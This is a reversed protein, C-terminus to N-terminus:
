SEDGNSKTEGNPGLKLRVVARKSGTSRRLEEAATQLVTKLDPAVYLRDTIEAIAKEREAARQTQQLASQSKEYLQANDLAVAALEAFQEVAQLQESSFVRGEELSALGLVGVIEDGSMLPVGVVARLIDRDVMPLRGPWERYDDVKIAQGTQWVTGALGQGPKVRTGIFEHYIGIGVRMQLEKGSPEVLHVYGHETGVLEAARTIINQLLEQLDLRSVLGLTTDHLATLYANQQRVSEEAQRRQIYQVIQSGVGTLTAIMVEDLTQPHNSFFVAVGFVRQMSVLPLGFACVLGAEAAGSTQKFSPDTLINESWIPERALLAKGVFGEDSRFTLEKSNVAFSQLEAAQVNWEHRLILTAGDPSLTWYEGIQWDLARCTTELLEQAVAEFSPAGALLQATQYQLNIRKEADQVQTLAQQTQALAVQTQEFLSRNDLVTAAQAMISRYLRLDKDSFQHPARWNFSLLGIWREGVKLPLVASAKVGSREIIQRAALPLRADNFLDAFVAPEFPNEIWTTSIPFYALPLRAGIPIATSEQARPWNGTMELAEPAGSADSYIRMLTASAAGQVVAPGSAAELAEQMTNAANLRASIEYLTRAEGLAEQTQAFLQAKDLAVSLQTALSSALREKDPTIHRTQQRDGLEVLGHIQNQRMLPVACYTLWGYRQMLKRVQPHLQADDARYTRLKGKAFFEEFDPFEESAAFCTGIPEASGPRTRDLDHLMVMEHTREDWLSVTATEMDLAAVFQETIHPLIINLDLEQSISQMSANLISVENLRTTTEAFLRANDLASVIHNAVSTLLAAQPGGYANFQYTQASIVGRLENGARLPVYLLSASPKDTGIIASTRLCEQEWELRTHNMVVSEGSALVRAVNGGPARPSEDDSFSEGRDYLAPRTVTGQASDFLWVIFADTAMLLPLFQYVLSYINEGEVQGSLARALDNIIETERVRAETEDFLRAREVAVGVQDAITQLLDLEVTGFADPMYSQISLVGIMKDGSQLPVGLWTRVDETSGYTIGANPDDMKYMDPILLSAGSDIVRGSLTESAPSRDPPYSVGHDMQMRFDLLQEEPLYLAMFFADPKLLADVEQYIVQALDDFSTPTTVARAIRNLTALRNASAETQQFLRRKEIASAMQTAMTEAVRIDDQTFIREPETTDLGITGIVKDGSLLPIIALCSTHRERMREHIPATLPDHQADPVVLSKKHQIVYESSLNGSVPIVIGVAHQEHEEALADAVVTLETGQPNLLAIGCNRAHFTNVLEQAMARLSDEIAVDAMMAIAVRNIGELELNRQRAQTEARTRETLEQQVTNYLRANELATSIARSVREILALDAASFERPSHSDIGVTGIIQERVFLPALLISATQRTEMLDRVAATREDHRADSIALPMGTQLVIETSPNGAVPIVYGLVSPAGEPSYDAVVTLTTHDQSLLAIGTQDAGFYITLDRCIEVLARDVDFSVAHSTVRNLLETERLQQALATEARRREALEVQVTNFLRTNRLAAAAQTALLKGIQEDQDTFRDGAQVTTMTLVGVTEGQWIMPIGIAARFPADSFLSSRFEWQHYDDVRIPVGTAMVRGSLGEGHKLRRGTMTVAGVNQSFQLEIEDEGVPVWIDAGDVGLLRKAQQCILDLLTNVQADLKGLELSIDFLARIRDAQAAIQHEARTREALETQSSEYLRANDLAIAALQAFRELVLLEQPGFKREPDLYALGIIGIVESGSRLPVGVVARLIDRSADALRGTYQRYDDVSVPENRSWVEGALGVGMKVRRGVFGAYAGVGVRLEMEQEGPEKIFVYGNDTGVLQGARAVIDQLLANVDLRGILGITTEQLAGLYEHQQRLQEQRNQEETIDWFMIQMGDIEGALNRLPTKLVHVIIDTGDGRQHPEITDITEGDHLVRLDDQWYKEALERPHFDFDTKGYLDNPTLLTDEWFRANGFTVRGERDKRTVAQPLVDVLSRYLAENQRVAEEALKRETVDNTVGTIRFETDSVRQIRADEFVWHVAGQADYVRFEQTYGSRGERMANASNLSIREADAADWSNFWADAFSQGELIQLPFFRLAAEPNAYETEWHFGFAEATVDDLQTVRATWFLTHVHEAVRAMQTQARRTETLDHFFWVRALYTGDSATVPASFEEFVRGDVLEVQDRSAGAKHLYAEGTRKLWVDTDLVTDRVAQRMAEASGTATVEPSIGWMEAFRKNSSLVRDDAGVVLIGDPSVDYQAAMLANQFAEREQARKHETVDRFMGRTSVVRGDLLRPTASGEILVKRGDKAVFATQLEPVSEGSMLKGFLAMCHQREDPHIVDMFNLQALEQETYGLTEKWARNVYEYHGQADISQILDGANEFLDRYREESERLVANARVRETVDRLIGSFYIQDGSTWQSLSLDLPFETGDKRLGSMEVTTGLIHKEGGDRVREMGEIHAARYKEPMLLTLSQGVVEIEAYQFIKEAGHNWGLITGNADAVVIADNASEMIARLRAESARLAEDAQKRATIDQSIGLLYVPKGQADLIPVKRTHLWRTEGAATKIPEEPIDLTRGSALTERDKAVFFDAVDAPFFDHDSKGLFAQRPTQTIEEGAKNWRVFTLDRAEKVFLMTPVSEIISDLFQETSERQKLERQSDELLRANDLAISALSAFRNLVDLEVPGFHKDAELHALGIIGITMEESKIPVGVVARLVNRSADALRGSWTRYDDVALAEGTEWVQGALGNGRKAKTGVFEQYTGVGVRMIMEQTEADLLFVYGNQTGVLEGARKIIDQLLSQLDRRQMLEVSVNQLAVYYANNSELVQTRDTVRQELSGVLERLQATMANFTTALTGIEDSSEVPARAQLNGARVQEATATLEVLPRTLFRAGGVAVAAAIGAIVLALLITNRTQAEIPALAESRNQHVLLLWGLNSVATAVPSASSDQVPTMSYYRRPAGPQAIEITDGQMSRVQALTAPDHMEAASDGILQQNPLLLQAHGTEGPKVSELLTAIAQISFTTRLIGEITKEDAGYIPVAINIANTSASEDFEPQGIYVAGQGNNYAKQWWEEDAQYYDSTRNTAAVNGGYKDTLFVEANEPYAARFKQLVQAAPNNLRSAVLEDADNHAADAARWQADRKELEAQNANADSGYSANAQAVATSLASDFALVNLVNTEQELLAVVNRAQTDALNKLTTGTRTVLIESSVRNNVVALVALPLLTLALSIVIFKERLSFKPFQRLLFLAYAGLIAGAVVISLAFDLPQPRAPSGFFDLLICAIASVGGALFAWIRWRATLTLYGIVTALVLAIMGTLVGAGQSNLSSLPLFTLAIALILTAGWEIKGRRALVIAVICAGGLAIWAGIAFFSTGRILGSVTLAAMVAAMVFAIRSLNKVRAQTEKDM